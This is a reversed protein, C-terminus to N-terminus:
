SSEPFRIANNIVELVFSFFYECLIILFCLYSVNEWSHGNWHWVKGIHNVGWVDTHDKGVTVNVLEGAIQTWGVHTGSM